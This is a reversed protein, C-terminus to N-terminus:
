EGLKVCMVDCVVSFYDSATFIYNSIDNFSYYSSYKDGFLVCGCLSGHEM